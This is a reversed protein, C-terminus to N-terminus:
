ENERVGFEYGNEALIEIVKEYSKMIIDGCKLMYSTEGDDFKNVGIIDVCDMSGFEEEFWGTFERVMGGYNEKCYEQEKGKGGYLGIIMIGGTLIGCAGQKGGIGNCLGNTSRILDENCTDEEELAMKLMIQTCCYGLASLKFVKFATESSM